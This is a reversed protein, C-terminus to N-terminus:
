RMRQGPTIHQGETIKDVGSVVVKEGVNIGQLVRIYRANLSPPDTLISKLSVTNKEPDITWVQARGDIENKQYLSQAPLVVIGSKTNPSDACVTVLAGIKFVMPANDIAIKVRHTRTSSDAEPGVERIVGTTRITEDLQLSVLFHSDSSIAPLKSAPIDIVVDRQELSALTLVTQGAQVTQGTEVATSTIVGDFDAKLRTYSFQERAKDLNAQAKDVDAQATALAQRALDYEEKSIVLRANLARKRQETLATNRLQAQASRLQAEANIVSQQQPLPDIEALVDDKHVIDGVDVKRSIVRGLTRFAQETEIHPQIIGTFVTDSLPAAEATTWIVQRLATEKESHRDCASLLIGTMILLPIFLLRYRSM